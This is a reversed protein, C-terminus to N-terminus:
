LIFDFIVSFIGYLFDFLKGFFCLVLYLIVEERLFGLLIILKVVISEGVIVM